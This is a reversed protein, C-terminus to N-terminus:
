TTAALTQWARRTLGQQMGPLERWPDATQRSLRRLVATLTMSDSGTLRDLEEWALPVSVPAHPKARASYAAVTTAGRTNRHSDLFIKGRRASLSPSTTYLGPSRGAFNQVVQQAFRKVEDWQHRRRIPVVVHLGRGGTTKVFSALGVAGLWDRLERAAATTRRWPFGEDPDLDFVLRDPREPRDVRTTWVHFEIVGFQVLALLGVLDDVVLFSRAGERTSLEV